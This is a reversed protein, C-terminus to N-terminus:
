YRAGITGSYETVTISLAAAELRGIERAKVGSIEGAVIGYTLM